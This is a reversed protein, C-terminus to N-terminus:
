REPLDGNGEALLSYITQRSLSVTKAIAVVSEGDAHLRKVTKIVVPTVKRRVGKKSGGWRKGAARAAAQGAMVREGRLETEFEAISALVNAM